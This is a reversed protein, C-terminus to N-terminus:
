HPKPTSPDSSTVSNIMEIVTVTPLGWLRMIESISERQECSFDEQIEQIINKETLTNMLIRWIMSLPFSIGLSLVQPFFTHMGFALSTLLVGTSLFGGVFTGLLMALATQILIHLISFALIDFYSSPDRWEDELQFHVIETLYMISFASILAIFLPNLLITVGFIYLSFTATTSFLPYCANLALVMFFAAQASWLVDVLIKTLLQRSYHPQKYISLM